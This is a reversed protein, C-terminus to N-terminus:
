GSETGAEVSGYTVEFYANEFHQGRRALGDVAGEYLRRALTLEREFGELALALQTLDNGAATLKKGLYEYNKAARDQSALGDTAPYGHPRGGESLKQANTAQLLVDDCAVQLVMQEAKLNTMLSSLARRAEEDHRRLSATSPLSAQNREHNALQKRAQDMHAQLGADELDALQKADNLDVQHQRKLNDYRRQASEASRAQQIIDFNDEGLSPADASDSSSSASPAIRARVKALPDFTAGRGGNPGQGSASISRLAGILSDDDDGENDYYGTYDGM